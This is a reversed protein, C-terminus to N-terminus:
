KKPYIVQGWCVRVAEWPKEKGHPLHAPLDRGEAAREPASRSRLRRLITALIYMYTYM